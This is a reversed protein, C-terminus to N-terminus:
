SHIRHSNSKLLHFNVVSFELKLVFISWLNILKRSLEYFNVAFQWVYLEISIKYGHRQKKFSSFNIVSFELKLVFISWSIIFFFQHCHLELKLVFISWLNILKQLFLKMFTLLLNVQVNLGSSTRYTATTLIVSCTIYKDM